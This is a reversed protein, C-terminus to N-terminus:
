CAFHCDCHWFQHHRILLKIKKLKEFYILNVFDNTECGWEFELRQIKIDKYMYKQCFERYLKISVTM